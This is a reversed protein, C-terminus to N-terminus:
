ATRCDCVVTSVVYMSVSLRLVRERMCVRATARYYCTFLFYLRNSVCCPYVHTYVLYVTLKELSELLQVLPWGEARSAAVAM